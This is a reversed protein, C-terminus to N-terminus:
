RGTPAQTTKPIYKPDIDKESVKQSIAHAMGHIKVMHKYAERGQMENMGTVSHLNHRFYPDNLYNHMYALFEEAPSKPNEKGARQFLSQSVPHADIHPYLMEGMKRAIRFAVQPHYKAAIDYFVNHQKEHGETSAVEVPQRREDKVNFSLQHIERNARGGLGTTDVTSKGRQMTAGAITTPDILSTDKVGMARLRTLIQQPRSIIMPASPAKEVLQKFRIIDRSKVLDM